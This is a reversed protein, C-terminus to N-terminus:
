LTLIIGFVTVASVAAAGLIFSNKREKKKDENMKSVLDNVDVRRNISPTSNLESYYNENKEKLEASM